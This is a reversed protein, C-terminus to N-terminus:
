ANQVEEYEKLLKDKGYLATVTNLDIDDDRINPDGERNRYWQRLKSTFCSIAEQIPTSSM